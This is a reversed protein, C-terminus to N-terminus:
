GKRERLFTATMDAMHLMTALPYRNFVQAVDEKTSDFSMGAHHHMIAVSEEVSLPIFTRAMYESTVEHSGYIFRACEDRTRFEPVKEWKGTVENKVNRMYREYFNAKSIDHLLSVIRITDESYAPSKITEEHEEVIVNGDSDREEPFKITKDETVEAALKELEDYVNLSHQCLGGEYSCHYRTSAPAYFFDSKNELWNVLADINAGEVGIGMILDLFRHKNEDIHEATLM